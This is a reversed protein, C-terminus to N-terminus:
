YNRAVLTLTGPVVVTFRARSGLNGAEDIEICDSETGVVTNANDRQEATVCFFAIGDLAEVSWDALIVGAVQAGPACGDYLTADFLVGASGIGAGAPLVGNATVTACDGDSSRAGILAGTTADVYTTTTTTPGLAVGNRFLSSTDLSRLGVQGTPPYAEAGATAMAVQLTYSANDSGVGSLTYSANSALVNRWAAAVAFSGTFGADGGGGGCGALAVICALAALRRFRLDM